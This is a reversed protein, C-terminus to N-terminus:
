SDGKTRQDDFLILGNKKALYRPSRPDYMDGPNAHFQECLASIYCIQCCWNKFGYVGNLHKRNKKMDILNQVANWLLTNGDSGPLDINQPKDKYIDLLALKQRGREALKRYTDINTTTQETTYEQQLAKRVKRDLPNWFKCIRYVLGEFM